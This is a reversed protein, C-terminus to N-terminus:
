KGDRSVTTEPLKDEVQSTVGDTVLASFKAKVTLSLPLPNIPSLPVPWTTVSSISTSTISM